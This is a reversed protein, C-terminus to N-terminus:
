ATHIVIQINICGREELNLSEQSNCLLPINFHIPNYYMPCLLLQPTHYPLYINRDSLMAEAQEDTFPHKQCEKQFLKM